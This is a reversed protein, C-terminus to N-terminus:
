GRRGIRWYNPNSSLDPIFGDPDRIMKSPLEQSIKLAKEAKVKMCNACACKKEAADIMWQKTREDM